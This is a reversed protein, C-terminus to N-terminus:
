TVAEAGGEFSVADLIPQDNLVQKLADPGTAYLVREQTREWDPLHKILVPIDAEGKDLGEAFLRAFALMAEDSSRRDPKDVSVFVPGKFFLIQNPFIISATGVEGTKISRSALSDRQAIYQAKQTLFAYAELDKGTKTVTLNFKEGNVSSYVRGISPSSELGEATVPLNSKPGPLYPKGAARYEGIQDPLLKAAEEMTITAFISSPLLLLLSLAFNFLLKSLRSIRLILGRRVRGCYM